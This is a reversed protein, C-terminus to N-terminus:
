DFTSASEEARRVEGGGRQGVEGSQLIQQEQRVVKDAPPEEAVDARRQEGEESALDPDDLLVLDVAEGLLAVHKDVRGEGGDCADVDHGVEWCIPVLRLREKLTLVTPAAQRGKVAVMACSSM